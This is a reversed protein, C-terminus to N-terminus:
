LFMVAYYGLILSAFFMSGLMVWTPPDLRRAIRAAVVWGAAGCLVIGLGMGILGELSKCDLWHHRDAYDIALVSLPTGLGLGILVCSGVWILRNM